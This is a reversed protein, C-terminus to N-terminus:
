FYFKALIDKGIYSFLDQDPLQAGYPLSITGEKLSTSLNDLEFQINYAVLVDEMWKTRVHVVCTENGTPNVILHSADIEINEERIVIEDNQALLVEEAIPPIVFFM